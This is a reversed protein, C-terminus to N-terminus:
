SSPPPGTAPPGTGPPGAGPPRRQVRMTRRNLPSFPEAIGIMCMILLSLPFLFLLGLYVATLILPRLSSNATMHHLIALGILLYAFMFASTFGAAVLGLFGPVFTGIVSAAFLLPFTRPLEILGLDPWPRALRGSLRVVHGAIWLNVTALAMWMSATVIPLAYTMVSALAEIEAPGFAPRGDPGAPLGPGAAMREITARVSAKLGDVDTATGILGIATLAGGIIAAVALVRGLPYWEVVPRGSVDTQGADRNLLLLYSLVATPAGLALVYFLAARGSGIAVIALAGSVTAAAAAVWGWGLGAIAVPLPSSFFLVFVGLATGTAASAFLVASVLGTFIGILVSQIM